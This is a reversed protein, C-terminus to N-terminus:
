YYTYDACDFRGFKIIYSELSVKGSSFISKHLPQSFHSSCVPVLEEISVFQDKYLGVLERDDIKEEKENEDTEDDSSGLLEHVNISQDKYLNILEDNSMTDVSNDDSDDAFEPQYDVDDNDVYLAQESSM